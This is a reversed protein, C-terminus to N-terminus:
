THTDFLIFCQLFVREPLNEHIFDDKQCKVEPKSKKSGSGTKKVPSKHHRPRFHRVIWCPRSKGARWWDCDLM